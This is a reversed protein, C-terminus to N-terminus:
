RDATKQVAVLLLEMDSLVAGHEARVRAMIMPLMKAADRESSDILGDVDRTREELLKALQREEAANLTFPPGVKRLLEDLEPTHYHTLQKILIAQFATSIPLVQQGLVAIQRELEHM